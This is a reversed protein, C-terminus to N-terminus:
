LLKMFFLLAIKLRQSILPEVKIDGKDLPSALAVLKFKLFYECKVTQKLVYVVQTSQSILQLVEIAFVEFPTKM